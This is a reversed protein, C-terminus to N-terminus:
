VGCRKCFYRTSIKGGWIYPALMDAGELLRFAIPKVLQNPSGIKTCVSCNCRGASADADLEVEFQVTQCHCSGLHKKLM